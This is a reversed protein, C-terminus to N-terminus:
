CPTVYRNDMAGARGRHNIPAPLETEAPSAGATNTRVRLDFSLMMIPSSISIETSAIM